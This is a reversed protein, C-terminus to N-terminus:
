DRMSTWFHAVTFAFLRYNYNSINRRQLHSFPESYKLTQIAAPCDGAARLNSGICIPTTQAGQPGDYPSCLSNYFTKKVVMRAPAKTKPADADARRACPAAAAGAEDAAAPFLIPTM